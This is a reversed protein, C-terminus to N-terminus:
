EYTVGKVTPIHGKTWLWNDGMNFTFESIQDRTIKHCNTVFGGNEINAYEVEAYEGIFVCNNIGLGEELGTHNLAFLYKDAYGEYNVNVICNEVLGKNNGVLASLSGTSKITMEVYADKLGSKASGYGSANAYFVSTYNGGSIEGGIFSLRKIIGEEGEIASIYRMFAVFSDNPRNIYMNYITFGNGDFIGKFANNRDEFLPMFGKGDNYLDGGKSVAELMDIDNGLMYNGSNNGIAQLDLPTRIITYGLDELVTVQCRYIVEEKNINAKIGIVTDGPNNFTTTGDQSVSVIQENESFWTINGDFPYDILVEQELIKEVTGAVGIIKRHNLKFVTDRPLVTFTVEEKIDTNIATLSITVEGMKLPTVVGYKDVTAVTEDSSKWILAEYNNADVPNKSYELKIVEAVTLTDPANAIEITTLEIPKSGYVAILYVGIKTKGDRVTVVASGEKLTRYTNGDIEIIDTDSTHYSYDNSFQGTQGIYFSMAQGGIPELVQNEACSTLTFFLLLVFVFAIIKKM